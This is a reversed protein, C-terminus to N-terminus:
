VSISEGSGMIRCGIGMAEVEREFLRDDAPAMNRIWLFPVNYHCPIVLKPSIRRVAELADTVNMTWTDNGLGGIPLMLVDTELGEWEDLLLSDGLNTLTKGALTIKFGMSGLGVRVGPGPQERIKFGLIPVAIPGHVSKVAEVEVRGLAVSDGVDLPHVNEFPVWTSLGRGRPGVLLTQGDEIRALDKGCVVPAGSAEQVRDSHWHHDPDGHTILILTITEWESRPILSTLNFLSLNQGPDIAINTDGDEILFANYSFHTIKM